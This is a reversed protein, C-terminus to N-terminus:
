NLAQAAPKCAVPLVTQTWLASYKLLSNARKAPIRLEAGM